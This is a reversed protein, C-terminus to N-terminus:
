LLTFGEDANGKLLDLREIILEYTLLERGIHQYFYKCLLEPKLNNASGTAIKMKLVTKEGSNDAELQFVSPRINVVKAKGKSVREIEMLDLALLESCINQANEIKEGLTVRYDAATVIAAGTKEGEALRRVETIVFGKNSASNLRSMIEAEAMEETLEIDVYEGYGYSGLSLPVAFSMQQHPNFGNSYAIPLQARKVARQFFTLLDLHGIYVMRDIKKFKVRYKNLAFVEEM